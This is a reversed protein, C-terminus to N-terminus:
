QATTEASEPALELHWGARRERVIRAPVGVATCNSPLNRTVTAGAGVVSWEGLEVRPVTSAGTGIDCGTGVQVGGPLAVRPALTGYAGIRCDHSVSCQVNLVSCPGLDVDVTVVVGAAVVAGQGVQSRDMVVATPHVLAPLPHGLGAIRAVARCRAAPSGIGLALAVGPHRALWEGDGLVPMGAITQGWQTADDSLFGKFEWGEGARRLDAVLAAIERAHGGAGYVVIPGSM